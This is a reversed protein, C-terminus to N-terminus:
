VLMSRAKLLVTYVPKPLYQEVGLDSAASWM